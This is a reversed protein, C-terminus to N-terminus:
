SFIYRPAPGISAATRLFVKLGAFRRNKDGKAPRIGKGTVGAKKPGAGRQNKGTLVSLTERSDM